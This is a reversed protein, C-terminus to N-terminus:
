DAHWALLPALQEASLGFAAAVEADLISPDPVEGRAARRAIRALPRRADDWHRPIPLRACTWGLYRCYGGRAPEAIAALWAGIVRSNLLAALGHADEESPARVVYCTNLPVTPDGAALVLARPERGIDGWIVRPLDGRAAETRFLSWWRAGRADTRSELTHRWRSLWRQTAPDLAAVALGRADHTWIIAAASASARWPRLDEGRLLPRLRRPDVTSGGEVVFAENCGTKVGLIPRGFRSRALPVGASALADFAIRADPPLLLWPAGVSSDLALRATPIEFRDVRRNGIRSYSLTTGDIERRAGEVRALLATPYVAADFGASGRSWDDLALLRTRRELLARIGGGALARWLKSPLLLAIIGGDRSLQVARETFLAALDAQSAFGRGAAALAAGEEWAANRLSEFRSRLAVREELPVAHPRVWPPNGIVLDFGGAAAVEPFHTAFSFPLAAGERLRRGAAREARMAARLNTLRRREEVDLGRRARFLDPSRAVLLLECREDSLRALRHTVAGIARAREARDLARALTHKRAGSSRVYRLRLPDLRADPLVIADAFAHGALADGERVNRDLNPLPPLRLPDDVEQEVVVSLWLRLQCLWVATPDRDVGYICRTLVERRAAARPLDLRAALTELAVVLFSGSGCAPDLVRVATPEMGARAEDLLAAVARQTVRTTLAHPTYFAGARRRAESGMLSEFARGLMEPDVTADSLDTTAERATLRYRVLLDGLIGGLADDTFRLSRCRTEVGGRAFLGGNLFPVRGFARAANARARLPTNLTGFFLPDLFRRHLGNGGAFRELGHRLFARNGDLCGMAELFALFLLRSTTLLAITRRDAVAALGTASDALEGVHSELERYFRATLADRGLTERWRLHVLRDVGDSGAAIAAFTEADSERISAPDVLLVPLEAGGEPSPAAILLEGTGRHTVLLMWRMRPAERVLQRCLGSATLRLPPTDAKFEVLLARLSGRGEGVAVRDAVGNLAFRDRERRGLALAPSFGLLAGLADLSGTALARAADRTTLM